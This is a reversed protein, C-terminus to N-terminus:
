MRQYATHTTSITGAGVLIGEGPGVGNGVLGEMDIVGCGVSDGLM